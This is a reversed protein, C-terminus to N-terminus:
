DLGAAFNKLYDLGPIARVGYWSVMEADIIRVPPRWRGTRARVEDVHKQKFPFPETSLLVRDVNTMLADDFSIEPYRVDPRGGQTHLGALSLTRSIYTDESVTMWPNRWILYLVRRKPFSTAADQLDSLARCFATCIKEAREKQHFMGGLLRYLRLNDAPEVPHTVVVRCGMRAIADVDEKRNEDVNVIVHTPRAREVKELNVTKTGGVKAIAAVRDAPHVCFTTRGALQGALGLAFLLETISPVLSVIRIVGTAAPHSAGVDDIFAEVNV